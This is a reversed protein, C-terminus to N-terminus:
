LIKKQWNGKLLYGYGVVGIMIWYVFESMWVIEVNQPYVIATLYVFSLYFFLTVVEIGLATRTNGTGSIAHVVISGVACFFMAFAIVQLVPITAQILSLDDTYIRAFYHPFFYTLAMLPILLLVIVGLMKNLFPLVEARRGAGILNSIITSVTTSLASGPIMLLVFLSRGINTVALHREGMREIFIFFLFWTSISIFFQLMIFISVELNKRIISFDFRQFRFLNFPKLAKKRLTYLVLYVTSVGEAIVSALAAGAIGMEPFIGVGFILFYNLVINTTTTIVASGTLVSTKTIGVFLGRFMVNVYSFLLGWIRWDLYHLSAEFIQESSVLLRLIHRNFYFSGVLFVLSLFVMFILANNFIPGVAAFNGEGNRRGVIIQTGQSFGFGIIFIALYYVGGIASAGLAVESVRGLFATDTLNIVNQVLLTLFVPYTIRFIHRYSLM